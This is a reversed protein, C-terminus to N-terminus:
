HETYGFGEASVSSSILPDGLQDEDSAIQESVIDLLGIEHDQIEDDSM